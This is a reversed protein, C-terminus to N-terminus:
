AAGAYGGMFPVSAAVADLTERLEPSLALTTPIKVSAAKM